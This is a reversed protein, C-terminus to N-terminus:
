LIKNSCMARPGGDENKEGEGSGTGGDSSEWTDSEDPKTHDDVITPRPGRRLGERLPLTGGIVEGRTQPAGRSLSSVLWGYTRHGIHWLIEQLLDLFEFFEEGHVLRLELLDDVM